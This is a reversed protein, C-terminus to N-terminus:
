RVSTLEGLSKLVIGSFECYKNKGCLNMVGTGISEFFRNEVGMMEPKVPDIKFEKAFALLFMSFMDQYLSREFAEAMQLAVSPDQHIPKVDLQCNLGLDKKVDIKTTDWTKSKRSFFGGSRKKGADRYYSESMAVDMTCNGKLPESRTFYKYRLAVHQNFLLPNPATSFKPHEVEHEFEKGEDDTYVFKTRMMESNGCYAGQTVPTEFVMSQDSNNDLQNMLIEINGTEEGTALEVTPFTQFSKVVPVKIQTQSPFRVTRMQFTNEFQADNLAVNNNMITANLQVDFMPIARVEYDKELNAEAIRKSLLHVQDTADLTYSTRAVGIVKQELKQLVAESAEFSEKANALLLNYSNILSDKSKSLWELRDQFPAWQAFVQWKIRLAEDLQVNIQALKTNLLQYDARYQDYIAQKSQADTAAALDRDYRQNLNSIELQVSSKIEKIDEIQKLVSAYQGYLVAQQDIIKAAEEEMKRIKELSKHNRSRVGLVFEFMPSYFDQSEIVQQYDEAKPMRYTQQRLQLIKGCDVAGNTRVFNGGYTRKQPFVYILNPNDSDGMITGIGDLSVKKTIEPLKAQPYPLAMAEQFFLVGLLALCKKM